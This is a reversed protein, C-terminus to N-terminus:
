PKAGPRASDQQMWTKVQRLAAQRQAESMSASSTAHPRKRLFSWMLMVLVAFLLLGTVFLSILRKKM